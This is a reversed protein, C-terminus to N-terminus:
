VKRQTEFCKMFQLYIGQSTNLQKMSSRKIALIKRWIEPCINSGQPPEGM